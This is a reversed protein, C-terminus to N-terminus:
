LDETNERFVVLDIGAYRSRVGTYSKCPRVCAYLDFEKRLAVNVSRFNVVGKPPNVPTTIPAKLCNKTKRISELM